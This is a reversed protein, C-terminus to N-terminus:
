LGRTLIDELLGAAVMSLNLVYDIHDFTERLAARTSRWGAGDTVWIFKHGRAKWFDSMTRYEGATAKLKSGGGGYFNAEILYIQERTRVAFDVRRSSKDMALEMGWRSKVSPASVQTLYELGCRQCIDSIFYELIEEMATGGRNKRANSDLGVEIGVAYDWVSRIRRSRLQELFGVSKAFEVAHAIEGESLDGTFRFSYSHHEFRGDKFSSVITFKDERCAVLLPVLGAISPRKRLLEMFAAEADEKGVLYNLTNLDMEADQLNEFVKTWDVFYDWKRNSKALTSILHEFVEGANGCKIRDNFVPSYKM